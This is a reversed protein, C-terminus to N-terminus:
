RHLPQGQCFIHQLTSSTHGAMSRSNIGQTRNSAFNFHIQFSQSPCCPICPCSSLSMRHGNPEVMIKPRSRKSPELQKTAGRPISQKHSPKNQAEQGRRKTNTDQLVGSYTTGRENLGTTNWKDLKPPFNTHMKNSYNGLSTTKSV